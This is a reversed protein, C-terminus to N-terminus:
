SSSFLLTASNTNLKEKVVLGAHNSSKPILYSLYLLKNLTQAQYEKNEIKHAHMALLRSIM